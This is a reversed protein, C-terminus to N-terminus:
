FGVAAEIMLGKFNAGNRVDTAPFDGSYDQNVYELKAVMNKTVFWGLVGQVRTASVDKIAGSFLFQADVKNYRGGVYFNEKSGFRYILEGALQGATREDKEANSRGQATEYTGFFEIGKYKLFLNGMIATVKDTFGPQINGSWAQATANTATGGVSAPEVVLYYRSGARDGNYLVNRATSSITYVSGTVRLRLDDNIQKDYGLKGIYAPKRSNDPDNTTKAPRTIVGNIAGTTMAFDALIGNKQYTVEGGIETNFADLVYNGVFPNYVANGNDTRRYHADGYNLENHGVRITVNEMVKDVLDSKLFPLKDFQIYGGKVWSENHHRASLYTILNMRVGDALWVDINLNATALNFGPALNYLNDNVKDNNADTFFKSSHSLHQYQQTFNGGLRVKVDGKWNTEQKPTEFVYLGDQDYPRYNTYVSQATASSMAGFLVVIFITSKLILSKM